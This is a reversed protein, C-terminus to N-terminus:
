ALAQFTESQANWREALAARLKEGLENRAFDGFPRSRDLRAACRDVSSYPVSISISLVPRAVANTPAHASDPAAVACSHGVRGIVNTTGNAAPPPTSTDARM